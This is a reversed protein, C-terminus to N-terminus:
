RRWNIGTKIIKAPNGAIIVNPAEFKRTVLSGAGIISDRAIEVGKLCQVRKGIWVHEGIMIDKAFNYQKKDGLNYICHEGSRIDIESSFLCKKGIKISTSYMAHICAGGIYTGRDIFIVNNDGDTRLICNNLECGDNVVIKNNSGIFHVTINSLKVNRGIYVFNNRGENIERIHRRIKLYTLVGKEKFCISLGKKM